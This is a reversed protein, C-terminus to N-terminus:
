FAAAVGHSHRVPIMGVADQTFVLRVAMSWIDAAKHAGVSRSNVYVHCTRFVSCDRVTKNSIEFTAKTRGGALAPLLFEESWQTILM